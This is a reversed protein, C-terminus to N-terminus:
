GFKRRLSELCKMAATWHNPLQIDEDKLPLPLKYHGEVKVAKQDMWDLFRWDNKSLKDYNISIKNACPQLQPEVFDHEYM